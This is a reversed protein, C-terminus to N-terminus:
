PSHVQCIIQNLLQCFAYDNFCVIVACFKASLRWLKMFFGGGADGLKFPLKFFRFSQFKGYVFAPMVGPLAWTAAV